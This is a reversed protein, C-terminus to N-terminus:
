LSESQPKVELTGGESNKVAPPVQQPFAQRPQNPFPGPSRNPSSKREGPPKHPGFGWPGPGARHFLPMEGNPSQRFRHALYRRTLEQRMREAPLSEFYERDEPKLEENYFRKLEAPDVQPVFRKSYVAAQMWGAALKALSEPDRAKELVQRTKPSVQEKLREVDEPQPRLVEQTAGSRRLSWYVSWYMALRRQKPDQIQRLRPEIMPFKALIEPEHRALLDDFWALVSASDEDTLQHTLLNGLRMTEQQRLVRKIEALRQDPPLSLLEARQGAPLTNLWHAYHELVKELQDARQDDQIEAHLQRLRDQEQPSLRDFLTQKQQLDRKEMPSLASVQQRLAPPADQASGWRPLMAVACFLLRRLRTAFVDCNM